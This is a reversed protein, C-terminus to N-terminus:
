PAEAHVVYAGGPLQPISYSGSGTTTAIYNSNTGSNIATVKVGPIAAGATDTVTGVITGNYSQAHAITAFPPAGAILAFIGILLGLGFCRQIATRRHLFRRRM